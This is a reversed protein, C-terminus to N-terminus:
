YDNSLSIIFSRNMHVLIKNYGSMILVLGAHQDQMSVRSTINRPIKGINKYDLDKRPIVVVPAKIDDLDGSSKEIKESPAVSKKPTQGIINSPM